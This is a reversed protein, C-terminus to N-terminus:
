DHRRMREIVQEYVTVYERAMRNADFRTEFTRRCVRRDIEDLRSVARVAADINDVIFGTQGDDIIEPTSGRRWAIVPTGCALSEIMVLGFPEEWEVPFLLARADALLREKERGGIEGVFRVLGQSADLLPAITADFYAREEPYIKAAITLPVGAARAIEIAHDVGKDPSMRGLFALYGAPEDNPRLLTRPLGHYVTAQWGASRVPLRQHDSISVVPVDHYEEFLAQVDHAHLLGHMTTVTAWRHRRVLPFHLYDVHFHLIDFRSAQQFVLEVLRVHQPLTERVDPDRWLAVPCGAVLAAATRSDGAAFLTVDHGLRVLEETLYSVVRETGGYLAPPVSEFLPAVQAIRM